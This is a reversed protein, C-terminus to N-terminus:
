LISHLCCCRESRYDDKIRVSREYGVLRLRHKGMVMSLARRFGWWRGGGWWGGGEGCM